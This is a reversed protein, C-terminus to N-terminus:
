VEVKQIGVFEHHPVEKQNELCMEIVEKINEMVETVSDGQTYCGKLDPVEAVYVGNEDKEIIVTFTRKMITNCWLGIYLAVIFYGTYLKM